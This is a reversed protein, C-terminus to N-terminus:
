VMGLKNNEKLLQISKEIRKNRTADTKAATIWLIYNHKYSKALKNFNTWAPENTKFIEEIQNPLKHGDEGSVEANVRNWEPKGSLPNLPLAKLGPEAMLDLKMLKEVRQINSPSWRSGSKRPTFKRTYIDENIKNVLSDIWGFCLAEEVADNYNISSIGTHKKYFVMRFGSCKNHNIKLWDRLENRTKFRLFIDITNKLDPELHLDNLADLIQKSLISEAMYVNDAMVPTNPFHSEFETLEHRFVTIDHWRGIIKGLSAISDHNIGPIFVHSDSLWSLTYDIDKIFRRIKHLRHMSDSDAALIKIQDTRERIGRLLILALANFDPEKIVTSIKQCCEQLDKISLKEIENHLEQEARMIKSQFFRDLEASSGPNFKKILKLNINHERLFGATKFLPILRNYTGHSDIQVTNETNLLKLTSKISKISLRLKHINKNNQKEKLLEFNRFLLETQDHFFLVLSNLAM